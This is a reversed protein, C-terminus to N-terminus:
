VSSSMISCALVRVFFFVSLIKSLFEQEMRFGVTGFFIIRNYLKFM